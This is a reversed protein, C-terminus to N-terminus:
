GGFPIPVERVIAITHNESQEIQEGDKAFERRVYGIAFPKGLLPSECASTIRGIERDGKYLKDGPRLVADSVLGMLRKNVHGQADIRAMVEQGLYCGKHFNLAADLRAEQPFNTEDMDKHMLALGSEIRFNDFARMGVRQCDLHELVSVAKEMTSLVAFGPGLRIIHVDSEALRAPRIAYLEAPLDAAGASQLLAASEPGFVQIMAVEGTVDKMHVDESIIYRDLGTITRELLYHQLVMLVHDPFIYLKMDAQIHGKVDLFLAPTGHSPQLAKIESSLMANLFKQREKGTIRVKGFYSVDRIGATKRLSWYEKVPDGYHSPIETGFFDEFVAGKSKHWDYTPIRVM